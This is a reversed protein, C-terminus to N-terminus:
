KRVIWSVVAPLIFAVVFVIGIIWPNNDQTLLSKEVYRNSVLVVLVMNALAILPLIIGSLLHHHWKLHKVSTILFNYVFGIMVGLLATVSYLAWSNLFVLFPILVLSIILNAIIIVIIMTWFVVRSFVRNKNESSKFAAEVRRVEAEPWGKKLLRETNM